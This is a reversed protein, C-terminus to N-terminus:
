GNVGILQIGDKKYVDLADKLTTGRKSKHGNRNLVKNEESLIWAVAYNDQVIENVSIVSIQSPSLSRLMRDFMSLTFIHDLHFIGRQKGNPDFKSQQRGQWQTLQGLLGLSKYVDQAKQSAYKKGFEEYGYLSQKYLYRLQSSCITKDKTSKHTSIILQLISTTYDEITM